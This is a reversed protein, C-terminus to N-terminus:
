AGDEGGHTRRVIYVPRQKAEMYIRGIYEGLIGVSILQLSGLFLVTVLLSAYGPVDIGYLLVRGFIFAAYSTSFLAGALGVYTWVKLPVVSFSTIGELAFNWLRAPSFKTAGHLRAPRVYDLTTQRFGVWTFLGKMFRQREPLRRVAEVVARDMLRFDGVNDPIQVSSIANHLAYFMGASTRKLWVDAERNVRRALVVEFGRAWLTLMDGLLEPPDQGDADLPIVADGRAADLGASLAAEKGFNRSLEVVRVRTDQAALDLLRALTDDTSGDDVFLLEFRYGPLGGLVPRLAALLPDLAAAENHCPVLLTILPTPTIPNM